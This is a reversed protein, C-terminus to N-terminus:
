HNGTTEENTVPYFIFRLEYPIEIPVSGMGSIPMLEVRSFGIGRHYEYEAERLERRLFNKYKDLIKYVM